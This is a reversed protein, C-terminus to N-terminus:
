LYVEELQQEEPADVFQARVANEAGHKVSPRRPFKAV